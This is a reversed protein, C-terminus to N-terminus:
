RRAAAAMRELVAPAADISPLAAMEAAIRRAAVGFEPESLVRALASRLGDATAARPPMALGAGVAAVREANFPQDAFLPVVVMPVGAALTGLTTGSGGHGVVAEVHALVDDQPVFREVHVNRPVEGLEEIPMEQGITLLVRIPLAGVADLAVRYTHRMMDFGGTVTGLTLYVLAGRQGPWWDPLAAATKRPTKFRAVEAEALVGGVADVSAPFLSLAPERLLRAGGPDSALGVRQGLADLVPAAIPFVEAEASRAIIAVRAHPVGLKESALVSAYEQSERVVIAPAFRETVQLLEPLAARACAGAFIEGVVVRNAHEFPVERMRQWLPRLGEDGPHGVPLFTAGIAAVRDELDIPAAVAVEHGARRCAEIFPVLPLFHSTNRLSAFLVRM